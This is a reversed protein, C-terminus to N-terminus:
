SIEARGRGREKVVKCTTIMTLTEEVKRLLDESRKVESRDRGSRDRGSSREWFIV